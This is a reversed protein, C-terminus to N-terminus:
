SVDSRPSACSPEPPSSSTAPPRMLRFDHTVYVRVWHIFYHWHSLPDATKFELLYWPLHPEEHHHIHRNLNFLPIWVRYENTSGPDDPHSYHEVAGRLSIPVLTTFLNISLMKWVVESHGARIWLLVALLSLLFSLVMRLRQVYPKRGALADRLYVLSQFAELAALAAVWGQGRTRGDSERAPDLDTNLWRHHALHTGRFVEMTGWMLMYGDFFTVVNHNDVYRRFPIGHIFEHLLVGIRHAVIVGPVFAIWFPARLLLLVYVVTLAVLMMPTVVRSYRSTLFAHFLRRM